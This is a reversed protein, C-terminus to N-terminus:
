PANRAISAKALILSFREKKDLWRTVPTWGGALLLTNASRRDFKHSNETHITEGAAMEFAVGSVEFALAKQAVLHMEVRAYDDNWRAEHRLEDVPITGDLERNIRRALNLNFEATVGAADDYAAELVDVPKILDMGILLQSKEGLTARMTRLLDVATRPVMNGITSGPFFGLKPFEAIEGPLEVQRMFDAEVPYVPLGPFKARLDEAAARLFDGSIDLPVYAAPSIADLLLPTKVSSGSGFEVVARGPGIQDAFTGARETLIQTEARTPYYEALQTIDEFLQSGADDYLWRAPIAKQQQRLGALVDARFARDVGDADLDVLKMGKAQAM